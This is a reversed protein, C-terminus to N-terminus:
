ITNSDKEAKPVTPNLEPAVSSNFPKPRTTSINAINMPLIPGNIIPRFITGFWSLLEYRGAESVTVIPYNIHFYWVPYLTLGIAFL